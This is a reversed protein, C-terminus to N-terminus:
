LPDGTLSTNILVAIAGIKNLALLSIAYYPRNEMFLVVRDGHKIGSEVLYRAFSNAAKNTESYTWTEDEFYVFPRDGFKQESDQFMHAVSNHSDPKPFEYRLVPVMYKIEGLMRFFEKIKYFM